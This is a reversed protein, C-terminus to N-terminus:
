CFNNFHRVIGSRFNNLQRVMGTNEGGVFGPIKTILNVGNASRVGTIFLVKASVIEPPAHIDLVGRCTLLVPILLIVGPPMSLEIPMTSVDEWSRIPIIPVAGGQPRLKTWSTPPIRFEVKRHKTYVARSPSNGLLQLKVDM